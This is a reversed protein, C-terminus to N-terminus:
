LFVKYNIKLIKSFRQSMKKGIPRKGHEMESIYTQSNKM